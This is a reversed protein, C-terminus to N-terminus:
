DDTKESAKTSTSLFTFFILTGKLYEVLSYGQRALRELEKGM